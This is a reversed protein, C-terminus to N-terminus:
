FPIILSFLFNWFAIQYSSAAMPSWVVWCVCVSPPWDCLSTDSVNYFAIISWFAGLVRTHGTDGLSTEKQTQSPFSFKGEKALTEWHGLLVFEGRWQWRTAAPVETVRLVSAALKRRKKDQAASVESSARRLCLAQGWGSTISGSQAWRQTQVVARNLSLYEHKTLFM